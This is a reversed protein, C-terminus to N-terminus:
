KPTTKPVFGEAPPEIPAPKSADVPGTKTGSDCGTAGVIIGTLSVWLIVKRM